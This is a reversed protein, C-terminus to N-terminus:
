QRAKCSARKGPLQCCAMLWDAPWGLWGDPCSSKAWGDDDENILVLFPRGSTKNAAALDFILMQKCRNWSSRFGNIPHSVVYHELIVFITYFLLYTEIIILIRKKNPTLNKTPKSRLELRLGPLYNRKSNLFSICTNSKIRYIRNCFFFDSETM